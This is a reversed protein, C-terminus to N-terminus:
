QVSELCGREAREPNLLDTTCYSKLHMPSM